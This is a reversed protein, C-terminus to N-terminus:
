FDLRICANSAAICGHLMIGPGNMDGVKPWCQWNDVVLVGRDSSVCM